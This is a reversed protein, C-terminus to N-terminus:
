GGETEPLLIAFNSTDNIFVTRTRDPDGTPPPTPTLDLEKTSSPSDDEQRPFRYPLHLPPLPTPHVATSNHRKPLLTLRTNLHHHDTPFAAVLLLISVCVISLQFTM